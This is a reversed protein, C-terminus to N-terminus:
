DKEKGNGKDSRESGLIRMIEMQKEHDQNSITEMIKMNKAHGHRGSDIQTQAEAKTKAKNTDVEQKVQGQIQEQQALMQMQEAQMKAQAEAQQQAKIQMRELIEERGPYNAAELIAEPDIVQRDYLALAQDFIALRSIPLTSGSGVIIDFDPDVDAMNVIHKYKPTGSGPIPQGTNPDMQQTGPLMEQSVKQKIAQADGPNEERFLFVYSKSGDTPNLFRMIRQETYYEIILKMWCKMFRRIGNEMNRIKQRLRTQTVQQFEEFAKGSPLNGSRPATYESTGAVKELCTELKNVFDFAQGPPPINSLEQVPNPVNTEYIADQRVALNDPDIGSRKDLLKTTYTSRTAGDLLLRYFNNLDLQGDKIMTIDSLAWFENPQIYNQIDIITPYFTYPNPKDELLTGECCTIIRGEPYKSKKDTKKKTKRENNKDWYEDEYEFDEEEGDSLICEVLVVRNRDDSKYGSVGPLYDTRADSPVASTGANTVQYYGEMSSGQTVVDRDVIFKSTNHKTPKVRYGEKYNDRVFKLSVYRAIIIGEATELRETYSFPFVFFPDIVECDIDGIGKNLKNNWFPRLFGTGVQKANTIAEVLKTDMNNDIWKQELVKKFVEVITEDSPEAPVYSIQPPRDTMFPIEKQIISFLENFVFQSKGQIKVKGKQQGKYLKIDEIWRANNDGSYLSKWKYAQELMEYVFKVLGKSKESQEKNEYEM